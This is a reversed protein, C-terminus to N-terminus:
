KVVSISPSVFNCLMLTELDEGLKKLYIVGDKVMFIKVPTILKKKTEVKGNKLNVVSLYCKDICYNILIKEKGIYHLSDILVIKKQQHKNKIYIPLNPNFCREDLKVQLQKKLKGSNEFIYLRYNKDCVLYSAIITKSDSNYTAKVYGYGMKLLPFLKWKEKGAKLYEPELNFFNKIVKLAPSLLVLRFDTKFPLLVGILNEDTHFIELLPLDVKKEELFKLQSNLILMKKRGFDWLFIKDKFFIISHPDLFEGPGNGRKGFRKSFEGKKTFKIISYGKRDLVYINRKGDLAVDIIKFFSYKANEGKIKLFCNLHQATILKITLFLLAVLKNYNFEWVNQM